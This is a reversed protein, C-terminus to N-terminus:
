GASELDLLTRKAPLGGRYGGLSGDSRLVRHCPVVVPVPNTACASGVARVASPRGTAAAVQTYSETHGYGIHTLHRLVEQRFGTSLRLDLPLAFRRRRGGFYDDLQRAVEDLRNPARLIRPSVRDSLAELVQQHGESDFAVRLLGAPSAAVLLTGLPSDVTRYVLDLLGDREADAALRLRLRDLTEREIASITPSTTM